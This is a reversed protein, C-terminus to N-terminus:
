CLGWNITGIKINFYGDKIDFMYLEWKIDGKILKRISNNTTRLISSVPKSMVRGNRYAKVVRVNIVLEPLRNYEGRKLQISDIYYVCSYTMSYENKAYYERGRFWRLMDKRISSVEVYFGM